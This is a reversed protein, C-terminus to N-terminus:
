FNNAVVSKGVRLAAKKELRVTRFKSGLLRNIHLFIFFHPLSAAFQISFGHTEEEDAITVRKSGILCWANISLYTVVCGFEILKSSYGM